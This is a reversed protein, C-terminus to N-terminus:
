LLEGFLQPLETPETVLFIRYNKVKFWVYLTILYIVFVTLCFEGSM